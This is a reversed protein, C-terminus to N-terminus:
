IEQIVKGGYTVLLLEVQPPLHASIHKLVKFDKIVKLVKHVQQVELVRIVKHVLQDQEVQLVLLVKLVLPEKHVLLVLTV